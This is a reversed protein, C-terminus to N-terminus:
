WSNRTVFQMKLWQLFHGFFDHDLTFINVKKGDRFKVTGEIISNIDVMNANFQEVSSISGRFSDSLFEHEPESQLSKCWYHKVKWYDECLQVESIERINSDVSKILELNLWVIKWMECELSDRGYCSLSFEIKMHGAAITSTRDFMNVMVIFIWSNWNWCSRCEDAVPM